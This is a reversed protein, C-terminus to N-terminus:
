ELRHKNQSQRVTDGPASRPGPTNGTDTGSCCPLPGGVKQLGWDVILIKSASLKQQLQKAAIAVSNFFCFVWPALHTLM